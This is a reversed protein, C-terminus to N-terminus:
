DSKEGRRAKSTRQIRHLDEDVTLMGWNLARDQEYRKGLTIATNAKAMEYGLYFAHGPDVNTSIEQKLLRDFLRFPDSDSIWLKSSVLHIEGDQAFIRYNNDKITHALARFMDLSHAMLRDDRLMVLDDSLRKPPVQNVHSYHVIRRAIDCERVSTRAWNIVETTLISSIQLEECIALLLLNVGASDVDSLETVNGIGMMMPLDPYESRITAYRTLSKMLGAGIPELISDLRIKMGLKCLYDITDHFSRLDEVADPIVVVECGWDLARERNTSNVSLVLSAGAGVADEVELPDFSDISVKAGLDCVASVYDGIELCRDAPDCGLDIRDAGDSIMKKAIRVVEKISKRPVHNIESIIEITHSTLDKVSSQEGFLRPIERCDKPGKVIPIEFEEELADLGSECYGPVIVHTVGAPLRLHRLLWKPTILAAVTIPMVGISYHFGLDGAAQAVIKRVSAGALKGTVFQYHHEATPKLM